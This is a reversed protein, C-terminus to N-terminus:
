LHLLADLNKNIRNYHKIIRDVYKVKIKPNRSNYDGVWPWVVGPSYKKKHILLIDIM